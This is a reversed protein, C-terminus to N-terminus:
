GKRAYGASEAFKGAAQMGGTVLTQRSQGRAAMEAFRGRFSLDSASVRYGWAERWANNRITLADLEGMAATEAQIDLASDANVEIGQAAMAARQSGILKKTQKIHEAAEKNGRKITDEAQINALRANADMTMREYEGQSKMAQSQAYSSGIASIGGAAASGAMLANSAGM